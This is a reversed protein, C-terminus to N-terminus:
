QFIFLIVNVALMELKWLYMKKKGKRVSIKCTNLFHQVTIMLLHYEHIKFIRLSRRRRIRSRLEEM